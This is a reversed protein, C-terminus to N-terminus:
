LHILDVSFQDIDIQLLDGTHVLEPSWWLLLLRCFEGNVRRSHEPRVSSTRLNSVIKREHHAQRVVFLVKEADQYISFQRGSSSPSAVMTVLPADVLNVKHGGRGHPIRLGAHGRVMERIAHDLLSVNEDGLDPYATLIEDSSM